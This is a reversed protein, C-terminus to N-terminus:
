KKHTKLIWFTDSTMSIVNEMGASLGTMRCNTQWNAHWVWSRSRWGCDLCYYECGIEAAKDIIAREKEEAPDGMLCNMYDNFVVNLKEDDENPRRIKRRYGTLEAMAENAGGSVNHKYAHTGRTGRGTMQVETIPYFDETIGSKM